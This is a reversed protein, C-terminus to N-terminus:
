EGDFAKQLAEIEFKKMQLFASSVRQVQESNGKSMMDSLITPVVQWSIGFKDKLWGCQQAKPNGGKSLEEWYYDIEEQSKCNVVFSISENFGFDYELVSESFNFKSGDLQIQAHQISGEPDQGGAAYRWIGDIKSNSFIKTFYNIAEEAKGHVSGTFLFSPTIKQGVDEVKGLFLQWSLGYRDSLWGYRDSWEYKDIPMMISGNESLKKWLEDIEEITECIVMFSISPNFQFRPGGNISTYRLGDLEFEAIMLTGEPMRHHEFGEKGYYSKKGIKSNSFLKTYFNVAEEADQNFWLFPTIRQM